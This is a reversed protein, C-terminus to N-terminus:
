VFVIRFVGSTGWAACGWAACCCGDSCIEPKPGFLLICESPCVGQTMARCVEIIPRIRIMPLDCGAEGRQRLFWCAQPMTLEVAPESASMGSLQVSSRTRYGSAHLSMRCHRQVADTCLRLMWLGMEDATMGIM